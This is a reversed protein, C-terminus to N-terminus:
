ITRGVVFLYDGTENHYSEMIKTVEGSAIDKELLSLGADVEAQRALDSFSSIGQRNEPDLYFTPKDKGAYLFLDQLDKKVFYKETEMLEIGAKNMASTVEELAPMQQISDELMKPFYHNLWYGGVQQPTFMFIVMRSGSKLVRGLEQFGNELSTWHHLTLSAIAGDVADNGLPIAEATGQKWTITQNKAQAKTLMEMSPDVGIFNVGQEQLAITYNGTGCGIDLYQKDASAQLHHFLRGALYADAKRTRNYDKGIEDYKAKM